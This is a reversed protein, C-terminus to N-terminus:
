EYKPCWSSHTAGKGYTKESGCECKKDKLEETLWEKFPTLPAGYAPGTVLQNTPNSQFMGALHNPLRGCAKLADYVIKDGKAVLDHLALIPYAIQGSAGPVSVQWASHNFFLHNDRDSPIGVTFFVRTGPPTPVLEYFNVQWFPKGNDSLGNYSLVSPTVLVPVVPGGFLGTGIM